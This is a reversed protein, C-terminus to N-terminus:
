PDTAVPVSQADQHGTVGPVSGLGPGAIRLNRQMYTRMEVDPPRPAAGGLHRHLMRLILYGMVQRALDNEAVHGADPDILLSVDKHLMQLRAAYAIVGRLAIRRDMGGAMMLLPGRVRRANALPSQEHLRRMRVPDDPDLDLQRMWDVFPIASSLRLAERSRAIWRVTWSFDTPPVIAVGVKFLDPQWTMGLLTAYGGFSAGFIGVRDPDGIHRHLLFHVGDVIDQQVRGNGYDGHAALMYRRGLGTSGRFDPEFVAYGRDTLLQVYASFEPRVHNWPGGHALVVLPVHAPDRGPPLSLFGVLRMGDSARYSFPIKRSTATAPVSAIPRRDRDLRPFDLIRRLSGTRPDYLYWHRGQLRSSRVSILWRAHPGRGVDIHLDREHLRRDLRKMQTKMARTLGYDAAHVSRYGTILPRGSDPDLTVWELDARGHPDRQVTHLHGEADLRELGILDGDLNGSLLLSRGDPSASLFNCVRLDRCHRVAHWTGGVDRHLIVIAGQRYRAMFRLRGKGDFAYDVIRDASIDLVTRQGRLGIRVLRWRTGGQADPVQERVIVASAHRPDVGMWERQAPGGLTTVIGNERADDTSIAFVQRSSVLLLHRSDHTFALQVADARRLLRRAPGGGTPLLWVARENGQLRLYAVFRGDPSLTM